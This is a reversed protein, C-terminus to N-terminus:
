PGFRPLIAQHYRDFTHNFTVVTDWRKPSRKVRYGFTDSPETSGKSATRVGGRFNYDQSVHHGTENASSVVRLAYMM